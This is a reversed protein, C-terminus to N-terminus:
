YTYIYNCLENNCNMTILFHNMLVIISIFLNAQVLYFSKYLYLTAVNDGSYFRPGELLVQQSCM